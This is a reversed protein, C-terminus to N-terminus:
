QPIEYVREGRWVPGFVWSGGDQPAEAWQEDHPGTFVDRSLPIDAHPNHLVVMRAVRAQEDWLGRRKFEEFIACIARSAAADDRGARRAPAAPRRATVRERIAAQPRWLTPNLATIVGIASIARNRAPQLRSGPGFVNTPAAADAVDGTSGDLRVPIRVALEGFMAGAVIAPDVGIDMSPWRHCRRVPPWGQSRNAQEYKRGEFTRRFAPYPDFWGGGSPLRDVPKHVEIAFRGSPHEVVFDPNRGNVLPERAYSFRRQRLYAAVLAEDPSDAM